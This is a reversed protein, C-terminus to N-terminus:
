CRVCEMCYKIVKELKIVLEKTQRLNDKRKKVQPKLESPADTTTEKKKM